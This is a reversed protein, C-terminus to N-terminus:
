YREDLYASCNFFHVMTGKSIDWAELWTYNEDPQPASFHAKTGHRCLLGLGQLKAATEKSRALHTHLKYEERVVHLSCCNKWLQPGYEMLLGTIEQKFPVVTAYWKALLFTTQFRLNDGKRTSEFLTKLALPFGASLLAGPIGDQCATSAVMRLDAMGLMDALRYVMANVKLRDADRSVKTPELRKGSSARKKNEVVLLEVDAFRGRFAKPIKDENYDGTYVYRIVRSVIAPHHDSM